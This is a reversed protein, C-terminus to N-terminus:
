VQVGRLKAMLIVNGYETSYEYTVEDMFRKIIYIGLGGYKKSRLKDEVEFNGEGEFDFREGGHDRMIITFRQDTIEVIIDLQGDEECAYRVANSCAEDIALEIMDVEEPAFGVREAAM